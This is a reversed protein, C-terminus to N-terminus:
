TFAILANKKELSVKVTKNNYLTLMLHRPIVIYM